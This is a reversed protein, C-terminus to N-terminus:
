RSSASRRTRPRSWSCTTATSTGTARSSGCSRHVLSRRTSRRTAAGGRSSACPAECRGGSAGARPIGSRRRRAVVDHFSFLDLQSASGATTASRRRRGGGCSSTWSRRPRGLGHRLHAPADAAERRRALLRRRRVAAQVPRDQRDVRRAPRPVPRQVARARLLRSRRCAARRQRPAKAALDDLIEVKYPQGASRSSRGARRRVALEKRVFPHDAAVREAM